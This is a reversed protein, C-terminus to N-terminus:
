WAGDGEKIEEALEILKRMRHNICSKSEGLHEALEKLTKEPHKLRAKALLKLQDNLDALAGSKELKQIAVM